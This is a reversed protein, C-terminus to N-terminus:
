PLNSVPKAPKESEWINFSRSGSWAQDDSFYIGLNFGITGGASFEYWIVSSRSALVGCQYDECSYARYVKWKCQLSAVFVNKIVDM